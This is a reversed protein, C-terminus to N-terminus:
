NQQAHQASRASRRASGIENNMPWSRRPYFYCREVLLGLMLIRRDGIALTKTEAGTSLLGLRIIKTKLQM